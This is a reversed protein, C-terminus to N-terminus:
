LFHRKSLNLFDNSFADMDGLQIKIKRAFFNYAMVAPVAAILGIATTGLAEAIGPAVTALNASGQTAISRFADIIGVVTGFLGVFPAASGVTALFPIMSELETTQQTTARRLSREVNEIAGSAVPDTEQGRKLRTLEGYAARFLKVVPSKPLSESHSFVEDLRKSRWFEDLFKESQRAARSLYLWKYGIIYWSILSMILLIVVVGRVVGSAGLLLEVIDFGGAHAQQSAQVSFNALIALSM